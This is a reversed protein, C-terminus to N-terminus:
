SDAQEFLARIESEVGTLAALALIVDAPQVGNKNFRWDEAAVKAKWVREANEAREQAEIVVPADVPLLRVRWGWDGGERRDLRTVNFRQGDDLVIDRKGIRVVRAFKPRHSTTRWDSRLTAVDAGVQLWDNEPTASM